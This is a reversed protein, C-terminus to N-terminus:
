ITAQRAPRRRRAQRASRWMIWQRRWQPLDIRSRYPDYAPSEMLTLYPEVLCVPLFAVGIESGVADIGRRTESLHRRALARMDALVARIPASAPGQLMKDRSLGHRAILDAPVYMQGRACTWAFARLLGTLAYAVGAHGACESGGPDSGRSLIISALRILASCTEGCYGELDGQTPMPDDYLDFCRAEILAGFAGRPLGFRGITDLLAAALPHGAVEGRGVGEIAERWWQFRVEGPLADSVRDRIGAIELSFAYLAHLPARLDAPAFLVSLWRDFDETKVRAECAAYASALGESTINMAGTITRERAM